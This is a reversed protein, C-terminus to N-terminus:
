TINQFGGTTSKFPNEAFAAYIYSRSSSNTEAGEDLFTFGNSLFVVKTETGRSDSDEAGGSNPYLKNSVNGSDAGRANDIIVWNFGDGAYSKILLWQPKFGTYIFLDAAGTYSGFKSYGEVEAWCYAIHSDDNNNVAAKTGISFVQSTPATNQFATNDQAALGTTQLEIYNNTSTGISDHYVAWGSVDERLKVIIFKVPANLAHAVTSNTANGFYKAIAFGTTTNRTVVTAITPVSPPTINSDVLIKGDVEIAYLGFGASSRRETVEITTITGSGVAIVANTTYAVWDGGNIRAAMQGSPSYVKVSSTYALGGSPTFTIPNTYAGGTATAYQTSLSGDFANSPSGSPSGTTTLDDSYVDDQSYASTNLSGVPILGTDVLIKDDIRIASIACGNTHNRQFDLQTLTGSGTAITNWQQNTTSVQSGGNIAVSSANYPYVEVKSTYSLSPSFNVILNNPNSVGSTNQAFTSTSGDFLNQIPEDDRGGVANDSWVASQNYTSNTVLDGGNWSWGVYTSSSGNVASDSGLSYGDSNFATLVQANTTYEAQTRNSFLALTKGRITDILYHWEAGSRQKTWVLDPGYGLSITKAAGTGTYAVADM